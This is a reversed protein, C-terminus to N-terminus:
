RQVWRRWTPELLELTQGTVTEVASIGTPDTARTARYVAYFRKLLKKKHLYLMFARAAAYNLAPNDGYFQRARTKMLRRLSSFEGRKIARVLAKRRWNKNFLLRGDRDYRKHEMLAAFGENFWAPITGLDHEILPHVMEHTLTGAGPGINMVLWRRDPDYFGYRGGADQPYHTAEFRRFSRWNGFAYVRIPKDPRVSLFDLYLARYARAVVKKIYGHQMRKKETAVVFWDEAVSVTYEAGLQRSLSLAERTSAEPTAGDAPTETAVSLILLVFAVNM